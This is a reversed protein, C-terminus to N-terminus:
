RVTHKIKYRSRYVFLFHNLKQPKIFLNNIQVEKKGDPCEYHLTYEIHKSGSRIVECNVIDAWNTFSGTHFIGNEDIILQPNRDATKIYLWFIIGAPLLTFLGGYEYFGASIMYIGLCFFTLAFYISSRQFLKRFYIVVENPVSPDDILQCPEKFLKEITKYIDPYKDSVDELSIYGNLLNGLEAAKKLEHINDVSTFAWIQWKIMAKKWYVLVGILILILTGIFTIVMVYEPVNSRGVINLTLLLVPVPLIVLPALTLRGKQLANKISVKDAM